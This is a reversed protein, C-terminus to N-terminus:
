RSACFVSLFVIVGFAVFSWGVRTQQQRGEQDGVAIPYILAVIYNALWNVVTAM